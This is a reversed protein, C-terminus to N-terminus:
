TGRPGRRRTSGRVIWSIWPVWYKGYKVLAGVSTLTAVSGVVVGKTFGLFLVGLMSALGLVTAAFSAVTWAIAADSRALDSRRRSAASASKRRRNMHASM